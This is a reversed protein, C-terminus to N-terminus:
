GGFGTFFLFPLLCFVMELFSLSVRGFKLSKAELSPAGAAELHQLLKLAEDLDGEQMNQSFSSLWAGKAVKFCDIM